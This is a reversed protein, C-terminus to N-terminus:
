GLAPDVDQLEQGNGASEASTSNANPFPPHFTSLMNGARFFVKLILMRLNFYSNKFKFFLLLLIVWISRVCLFFFGDLARNRIKCFASKSMM